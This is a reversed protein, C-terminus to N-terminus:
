AVQASMRVRAEAAAVAEPTGVHLWQGDLRLGYLRQRAIARDFLLNLSFAGEPTDAFLEPKLIAVGAYIFPVVASEGRRELRGDPDMSFDGAGEYGLSTATPAVLVLIDMAEPQWGGILRGLNPEPGELWFSDSNFVVFPQDGLLPLAKKVGGGTELLAAREDSIRIEPAQTRKALHGEILDALYHVNVVATAIGGEAARDLAHDILARGAVEVLPKPVTATIPRMRKGLGAALVFAHTIPNSPIDSM